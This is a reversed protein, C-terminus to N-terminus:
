FERQIYGYDPLFPVDYCFIELAISKSPSPLYMGSFKKSYNIKISFYNIMWIINKQFALLDLYTPIPQNLSFFFFIAMIEKMFSKM